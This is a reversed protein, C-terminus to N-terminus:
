FGLSLDLFGLAGGVDYLAIRNSQGDDAITGRATLVGLSIGLAKTPSYDLSISSLETSKGVNQFSLSYTLLTSLSAALKDTLDFSLDTKSKIANPSNVTGDDRIDYGYFARSYGFMQGLHFKGFLTKAAAVSPGIGGLYTRHVLSEYSAGIVGVFGVTVSDFIRSRFDTGETWTKSLTLVPNDLDGSKGDDKVNTYEQFWGVSVGAALGTHQDTYGTAVQYWGGYSKTEAQNVNQNTEITFRSTWGFTKSVPEPLGAGINADPLATSPLNTSEGIPHVSKESDIPESPFASLAAAAPQAQAQAAHASRAIVSFVVVFFVAFLFLELLGGESSTPAAKKSYIKTQERKM